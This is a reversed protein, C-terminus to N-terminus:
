RVIPRDPVADGGHRRSGVYLAWVIIPLVVDIWLPVGINDPEVNHEAIWFYIHGAADGLYQVSLVVITALWFHGRFWYAMIGVVGIALDGMANEWQFGGDGRTYGILTAIHPGDLVHFGAGLLSNFGVVAVMWWVMHVDAALRDKSRWSQVFGGVVAVLVAVITFM